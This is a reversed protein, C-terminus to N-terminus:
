GMKYTSFGKERETFIEYGVGGKGLIRTLLM